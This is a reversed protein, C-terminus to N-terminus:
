LETGWVPLNLALRRELASRGAPLSVVAGRNERGPGRRKNRGAALASRPTIEKQLQAGANRRAIGPKVRPRTSSRREDASLYKLADPLRTIAPENVATQSFLPRGARTGHAFRAASVNKIEDRM